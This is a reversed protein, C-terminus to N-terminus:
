VKKKISGCREPMIWFDKREKKLIYFLYSAWKFGFSIMMMMMLVLLPFSTLTHQTLKNPMITTRKPYGRFDSRRLNSFMDLVSMFEKKTHNQHLLASPSLYFIVMAEITSVSLLACILDDCFWCGHILVIWFFLKFLGTFVM